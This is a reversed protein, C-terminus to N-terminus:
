VFSCRSVFRSGDTVTVNLLLASHMYLSCLAGQENIQIGFRVQVSVQVPINTAASSVVALLHLCDLPGDVSSCVKLIHYLWM